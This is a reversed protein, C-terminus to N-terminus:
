QEQQGSARRLANALRHFEQQAEPVNTAYFAASLFAIIKNADEPTLTPM